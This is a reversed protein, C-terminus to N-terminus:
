AFDFEYWAHRLVTVIYTAGSSRKFTLIVKSHPEGRLQEHLRQINQSPFIRTIHTHTSQWACLHM